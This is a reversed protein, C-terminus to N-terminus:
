HVQHHRFVQAVFKIVFNKINQSLFKQVIELFNFREVKLCCPVFHTSFSHLVTNMPVSQAFIVESKRNERYYSLKQLVALKKLSGRASSRDQRVCKQSIKLSFLYKQSFNECFSINERFSALFTM